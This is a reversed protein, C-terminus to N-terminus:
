TKSQVPIFQYCEALPLSSSAPLLFHCLFVCQVYSEKPTYIIRNM